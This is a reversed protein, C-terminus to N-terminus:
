KRTKNAKLRDLEEQSLDDLGEIETESSELTQADIEDLADDLVNLDKESIEDPILYLEGKNGCGSVLSAAFLAILATIVLRLRM